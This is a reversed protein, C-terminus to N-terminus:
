GKRLSRGLALMPQNMVLYFPRKVSIAINFLHTDRAKFDRCVRKIGLMVVMGLVAVVCVGMMMGVLM